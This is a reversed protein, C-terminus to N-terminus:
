SSALRNQHENEFCFHKKKPLPGLPFSSKYFVSFIQAYSVDMQRVARKDSGGGECGARTPSQVSPHISPCNSLRVSKRQIRWSMTGKSAAARRAELSGGCHQHAPCPNRQGDRAEPLSTQHVSSTFFSM